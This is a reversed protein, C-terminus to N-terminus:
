NKKFKKLTQMTDHWLLIYEKGIPTLNNIENILESVTLTYAPKNFSRENVIIPKNKDAIAELSLTLEQVLVSLLSEVELLKIQDENIKDTNKLRTTVRINNIINDYGDSKRLIQAGVKETRRLIDKTAVFGTLLSYSIEKNISYSEEILKVGDKEPMQWDTVLHHVVNRKIWSLAEKVSLTFLFEIEPYNKTFQKFINIDEIDNDIYGVVIKEM